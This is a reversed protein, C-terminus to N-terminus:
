CRVRLRRSKRRKLLKEQKLNMRIRKEFLEGNFRKSKRCCIRKITKFDRFRDRFGDRYNRWDDYFIDIFMDYKELEKRSVTLRPTIYGDHKRDKNTVM